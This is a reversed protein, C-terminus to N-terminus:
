ACELLLYDVWAVICRVYEMLCVLAGVTRVIYMGLLLHLASQCLTRQSKATYAECSCFLGGGGELVLPPALNKLPPMPSRATKM